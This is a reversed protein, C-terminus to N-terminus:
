AKTAFVWHCINKNTEAAMNTGIRILVLMADGYLASYIQTVCKENRRITRSHFIAIVQNKGLNNINCNDIM